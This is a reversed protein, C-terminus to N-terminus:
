KVLGRAVLADYGPTSRPPKKRDFHVEELRPLALLPSLDLVTSERLYVMKLNPLKAIAALDLDKMELLLLEELRALNALPALTRIPSKSVKLQRLDTLAALPSLDAVRLAHSYSFDRVPKGALAAFLAQTTAGDATRMEVTRLFAALPHSALVALHQRAGGGVSIWDIFGNRLRSQFKDRPAAALPGLMADRHLAYLADLKPRTEECLRAAEVSRYREREATALRHELLIIEGRYHGQEVLRDAYVLWAREDDPDDLLRRQLDPDVADRARETSNRAVLAEAPEGSAATAPPFADCWAARGAQYIKNVTALESRGWVHVSDPRVALTPAWARLAAFLEGLSKVSEGLVRDLHYASGGGAHTFSLRSGYRGPSFEVTLVGCPLDLTADTRNWKLAAFAAVREPLPGPTQQQQGDLLALTLDAGDLKAGDLKAGRLDTGVFRAAGLDADTLDAGRLHVGLFLGGLSSGRLNTGDLEGRLRVGRLDLGSLDPPSAAKSHFELTLGETSEAAALQERSPLLNTMTAGRLNLGDFRASAIEGGWWSSSSADAGSLDAERLDCSSFRCGALRARELSTGRLVCESLGAGEFVASALNAGSLDLRRFDWRSLDVGTLDLGALGPFKLGRLWALTSFAERGDEGARLLRALQEPTFPFLSGFADDGVVTLKGTREGKELQKGTLKEAKVVVCPAGDLPDDTFSGGLAVCLTALRELELVGNYEWRPTGHLGIRKGNLVDVLV